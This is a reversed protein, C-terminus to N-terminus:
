GRVWLKPGTSGEIQGRRGRAQAIERAVRLAVEEASGEEAIHTALGMRVADHVDIRRRPTPLLVVDPEHRSGTRLMSKQSFRLPLIKTTFMM